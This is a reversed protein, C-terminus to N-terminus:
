NVKLKEVGGILNELSNNNNENSKIKADIQDQNSLSGQSNIYNSTTEHHVPFPYGFYSQPPRPYQYMMPYYSYGPAMYGSPLMDGFDSNYNPYGPPMMEYHLIDTAPSSTTDGDNEGSDTNIDYEGNQSSQSSLSSTNPAAYYQFPIFPPYRPDAYPPVFIPSHHFSNTPLLQCGEIDSDCNRYVEPGAYLPNSGYFYSPHMPLRMFSNNQRVPNNHYQPIASPHFNGYTDFPRQAPSTHNGCYSPVRPRSHNGFNKRTVHSLKQSGTREVNDSNEFTHSMINDNDQFIEARLENCAIVKEELFRGHYDRHYNNMKSQRQNNRHNLHGRQMIKLNGNPLPKSLTFSSKSSSEQIGHSKETKTDESLPINRLLLPPVSTANTKYIIVARRSADVVHAMGYQHAIRHIILRQYSNMGPFEMKTRHSDLAYAELDVDIKLVFLRDKQNKVTSVLFTDIGTEPDLKVSPSPVSPKTDNSCTPLSPQQQLQQSNSEINFTESAGISEQLENEFETVM